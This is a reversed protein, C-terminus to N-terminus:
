LRLAQEEDSDFREAKLYRGNRKKGNCVYVACIYLCGIALFLNTLILIVDFLSLRILDKSFLDIHNTHDNDNGRDNYEVNEVNQGDRYAADIFDNTDCSVTRKQTAKCDDDGGFEETILPDGNCNDAFYVNDTLTDSNKTNSNDQCSYLQSVEGNGFCEDLIVPKCDVDVKKVIGQSNSALKKLNPCKSCDPNGNGDDEVCRTVDCQEAVNCDQKDCEYRTVINTVDESNVVEGDCYDSDGYTYKILRGEANCKYNFSSYDTRRRNIYRRKKTCAGIAVFTGGVAVYNCSPSTLAANCESTYYLGFQCGSYTPEYVINGKADSCTDGDVGGYFTDIMAGNECRGKRFLQFDDGPDSDTQGVCNDIIKPDCQINPSSDPNAACSADCAVCDYACVTASPCIDKDCEFGSLQGTVPEELIPTGQCYDQGEYTLKFVENNGRCQYKFASYKVTNGATAKKSYCGEIAYFRDDQIAAYNCTPADIVGGLGTQVLLFGIFAIINKM